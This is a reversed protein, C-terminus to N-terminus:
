VQTRLCKRKVTSTDRCRGEYVKGERDKDRQKESGTEKGRKQVLAGAFLLAHVITRAKIQSSEGM